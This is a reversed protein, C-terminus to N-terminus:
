EGVLVDIKGELQKIEEVRDRTATEIFVLAQGDNYPWEGAWQQEGCFCGTESYDYVQDAVEAALACFREVVERRSIREAM